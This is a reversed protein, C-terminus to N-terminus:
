LTSFIPLPLTLFLLLLLRSLGLVLATAIATVVVLLSPLSLLLASCRAVPAPGAAGALRLDAAGPRVDAGPGFLARFLLTLRTFLLALVVFLLPALGLGVDCRPVAAVFCFGPLRVGSQTLLTLCFFLTADRFLL